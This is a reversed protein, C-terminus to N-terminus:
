GEGKAGEECAAAGLFARCPGGSQRHRHFPAATAPVPRLARLLPGGLLREAVDVKSVDTCFSGPRMGPVNLRAIQVTGPATATSGSCSTWMADSGIRGVAPCMTSVTTPGFYRALKIERENHLIPLWIARTPAWEPLDRQV